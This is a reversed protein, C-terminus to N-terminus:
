LQLSKLKLEVLAAHYMIKLVGIDSYSLQTRKLRAHPTTERSGSDSLKVFFPSLFPSQILM